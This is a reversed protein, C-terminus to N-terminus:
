FVIRGEADAVHFNERFPLPSLLSTSSAIEQDIIRLQNPTENPRALSMVPMDLHYTELVTIPDPGTLAPWQQALDETFLTPDADQEVLLAEEVGDSMSLQEWIAKCYNKCFHDTWPFLRVTREFGVLDTIDLQDVVERLQRLFWVPALQPMWAEFEMNATQAAMTGIFLVWLLSELGAKAEDRWFQILSEQAALGLFMRHVLHVQSPSMTASYCHCSWCFIMAAFFLAHTAQFDGQPPIRGIKLIIQYDSRYYVDQIAELDAQGAYEKAFVLAMQHLRNFLDFATPEDFDEEFPLTSTAARALDHARFLLDSPLTTRPQPPLFPVLPVKHLMAAVRLDTWATIRWQNPGFTALDRKTTVLQRVAQTHQRATELEGDRIALSAQASVSM